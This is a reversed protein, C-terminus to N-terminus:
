QELRIIKPDVTAAFRGSRRYLNLIRNVDTQVKPRTYIVRPRLTTEATLTEDDLEDNGEFAVRNIIPNETVTVVLRDGDQRITVDAFLGTAYLSKLSRDVRGPDYRDGTQILLYSRVTSPEVRQTGDVVIERVVAGEQALAPALSFLLLFLGLALRGGAKGRAGAESGSPLRNFCNFCNIAAVLVAM